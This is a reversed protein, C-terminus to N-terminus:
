SELNVGTSGEDSSVDQESSSTKHAPGNINYEPGEPIMSFSAIYDGIAPPPVGFARSIINDGVLCSNINTLFIACRYMMGVPMQLVRLKRKHNLLSWKSCVIGYFWEVAVRAGSNSKDIEEAYDRVLEDLAGSCRKEIEASLAYAPDGYLVADSQHLVDAAAV